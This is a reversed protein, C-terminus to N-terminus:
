QRVTEGGAHGRGVYCNFAEGATGEATLLIGAAKAVDSAHVEKGGRSCQVTEGRVVASVLGHWKSNRIPRAVGYVGTPRLACIPYGQGFGYSHVFKEIAAKYAGYHRTPWLPDLRQLFVCTRDLGEASLTEDIEPFWEKRFALILKGQPRPQDILLRALRQAFERLERARELPRTFVEEVQDLIIVLPKGLSRERARWVDDSTSSGTTSGAFARQFTNLLGSLPDRRLYVVEYDAELRPLLGADLLSSKGVGSQGYLLAIPAATSTVKLFLERIQYGRPSPRM